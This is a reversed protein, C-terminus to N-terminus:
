MQGLSVSSPSNGSNSEVIFLTIIFSLSYLREEIASHFCLVTFCVTRFPVNHMLAFSSSGEMCLMTCGVSVGPAQLGFVVGAGQIVANLEVGPLLVQPRSPLPKTGKSLISARHSLTWPLSM